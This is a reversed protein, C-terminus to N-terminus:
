YIEYSEWEILGKPHKNCGGCGGERGKCIDCQKQHKQSNLSKVLGKGSCSSCNNSHYHGSFTNYEGEGDCTPCVLAGHQKLFDRIEQTM